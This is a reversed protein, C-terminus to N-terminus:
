GSTGSKSVGSVETIIIACGTANNPFTATITSNDPTASMSRWVSQNHLPNAISNYSISSTVISFVLSGSAVATPQVPTGATDSVVISALVLTNAAPARALVACTYTSRTATNGKSALSTFVLAM